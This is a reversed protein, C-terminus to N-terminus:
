LPFSTLNKFEFMDFTLKMLGINSCLKKQIKKILSKQLNCITIRNQSNKFSCSTLTFNRKIILLILYNYYVKGQVVHTKIPVNYSIIM